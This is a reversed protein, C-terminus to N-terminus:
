YFYSLQTMEVVWVLNLINITYYFDSTHLVVWLPLFCLFIPLLNWHLINVNMLSSM